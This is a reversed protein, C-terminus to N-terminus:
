EQQTPQSVQTLAGTVPDRTYCGGATPNAQTPAPAATKAATPAPPKTTADTMTNIDTM